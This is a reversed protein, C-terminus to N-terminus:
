ATPQAKPDVTESRYAGCLGIVLFIFMLFFQSGWLGIVLMYDDHMTWLTDRGNTPFMSSYCKQAYPTFLMTACSIFIAFQLLCAIFTCYTQAIRGVISWGGWVGLLGNLLILSLSASNLAAVLTLQSGKVQCDIDCDYSDDVNKVNRRMTDFDDAM